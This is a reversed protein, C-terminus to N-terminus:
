SKIPGGVAQRGFIGNLQLTHGNRGDLFGEELAILRFGANRLVEISECLLPNGQYLEVLSLEMEIAHVQSLTEAAGDLVNLEYGQVDLKLWVVDDISLIERHLADLTGVRVMQKGVIVAEPDATVHRELMALLSSSLSNGAVQMEVTAEAAGLALNLCRWHPDGGAQRELEAFEEPLPEFSVIRGRYGDERVQRAYQGINAGVDLLTTIGLEELWRLRRASYSRPDTSSGRPPYRIDM